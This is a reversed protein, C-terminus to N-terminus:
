IHHESLPGLEDITANKDTINENILLHESM